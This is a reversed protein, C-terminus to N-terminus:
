VSCCWENKVGLFDFINIRNVFLISITSKM